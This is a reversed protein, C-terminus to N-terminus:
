MFLSIADHFFDTRQSERPLFFFVHVHEHTNVHIECHIGITKRVVYPYKCLLLFFFFDGSCKAPFANMDHVHEHLTRM